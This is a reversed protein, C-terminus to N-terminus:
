SPGPDPLLVSPLLSEPNMRLLQYAIGGLGPLLGPSFADRALGSVPGYEDLSSLLQGDLTARDLGPPGVGAALALNSVEWAGLDGHCLTHNWGMGAEWCAAAARRLVDRWPRRDGRHLLDAAAIGIGVAGHCWAAPVVDSRIDRWGCREPDYLTEEYDFAATACRAFAPDGTASALRALAWGIGTAGHALGGIGEPFTDTPWCATDGDLNSVSILRHGIQGALTSWRDDDTWEALRLLPVVAGAIGQMLDFAEDALVAAAIREALARSRDIAEAGVVGFRRLLLWGWIQSGLGVYGGPPSPRMTPKGARDREAQDEGTRMTHLVAALLSDLGAVEDARGRKVEALYAGLLIAVGTKGAYVDPGLPLVAWGTPHLVPAIWTVSGDEARLAADSVVRMINAAQARRRRDLDDTRVRATLPHRDDPQWGENLYASVLAAQTVQRDLDLDNDRWRRLTDAVVDVSDGWTTGRPGALAGRRPTTAFFPVDDDLLEAIEADIVAPDGPAGPMNEAQTALLEAVRQRASQEDHLSAPHWLMRGLEAYTETGRPVVRVPCDAFEALIPELGGDRDIARLRETLEVFGGLVLQWYRGLVPDKGPHNGAVSILAKEWGVRAMDTRGDLIVPVRPAPQQGPLSGVASSDVGRWGLAVGRGPLLGTRLVTGDILAAARDVALGYGSPKAAQYIPTFLTECDVVIPVPGVAILNESHLDSGGLLRMVALWHGIGRYFARLEADDACYRHEVHEAWGYGDGEIVEPVRIRTDAPVDPLLARLQRALVRDVAVSRPKYVVRGAECRLIAVAQGGRHSDGAGFVAECLAGPEAGLLSALAARDASFRRALTVAAACRNEVVKNLRKLLPPYHESLSEWFGPEVAKALWEDFRAAPDAASLAGTVRAASLELVLVRSVKRHVTAYLMATAAEHVAHSEAGALGPISGLQAALGALAPELLPELVADFDGALPRSTGPNM